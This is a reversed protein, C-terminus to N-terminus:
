GKAKLYHQYQTFALALAETRDNEILRAALEALTRRQGVAAEAMGAPPPGKVIRFRLAYIAGHYQLAEELHSFVMNLYEDESMAKPSLDFGDSM